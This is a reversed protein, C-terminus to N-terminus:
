ARASFFRAVDLAPDDPHHALHNDYAHRRGAHVFNWTVSISPTLTTFGHNWGDPIFIIEGASLIGDYRVRSAGDNRGEGSPDFLSFQKEGRVQCLVAASGWPDYHLLTSANPGSIFLGRYPFAHRTVDLATEEVFPVVYDDRPLFSPMAWDDKLQVFVDDAWVFDEARFRSYWRVYRGRSDASDNFEADLYEALTMVDVMDFLDNYVPVLFEGFRRRLFAPTWAHPANWTAMEGTVIVPYGPTLYERIFDIQQLGMVRPVDM